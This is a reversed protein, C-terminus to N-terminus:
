YKEWPRQRQMEDEDSDDEDSGSIGQYLKKRQEWAQEKTLAFVISVTLLGIIMGILLNKIKINM